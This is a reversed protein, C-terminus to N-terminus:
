VQTIHARYATSVFIKDPPQLQETPPNSCQFNIYAMLLRFPRGSANHSTSRLATFYKFDHNAAASDARVFKKDDKM